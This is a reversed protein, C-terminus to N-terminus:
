GRKDLDRRQRVVEASFRSEIAALLSLTEEVYPPLDELADRYHTSPGGIATIRHWLSVDERVFVEDIQIGRPCAHIIDHTDEGTSDIYSPSLGQTSGEVFPCFGRQIKDEDSCTECSYEGRLGVQVPLKVRAM